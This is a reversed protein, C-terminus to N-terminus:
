TERFNPWAKMACKEPWTSLKWLRPCSGQILQARTLESRPEQAPLLIRHPHLLKPRRRRSFVVPVVLGLSHISITRAKTSQRPLRRSRVMRGLDPVINCKWLGHRNELCRGRMRRVGPSIISSKSQAFDEHTVIVPDYERASSPCRLIGFRRLRHGLLTNDTDKRLMPFISHTLLKRAKIASCIVPLVPSSSQIQAGLQLGLYRGLRPSLRKANGTSSFLKGCHTPPCSGPLPRRGRQVAHFATRHHLLPRSDLESMLRTCQPPQASIM